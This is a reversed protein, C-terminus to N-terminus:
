CFDLRPFVICYSCNLASCSLKFFAFFSWIGFHALERHFVSSLVGYHRSGVRRRRRLVLLSFFCIAWVFTKRLACVFVKAVVCCVACHFPLLLLRSVPSGPLYYTTPVSELTSLSPSSSGSLRTPVSWLTRTNSFSFFRRRTHFNVIVPMLFILCETNM